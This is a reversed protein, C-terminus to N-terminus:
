KKDESPVYRELIRTSDALPLGDGTKILPVRDGWHPRNANIEDKKPNNNDDCGLLPENLYRCTGDGLDIIWGTYDPVAYYAKAIKKVDYWDPSKTKKKTAM